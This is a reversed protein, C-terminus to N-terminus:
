LKCDVAVAPIPLSIISCTYIAGIRKNDDKKIEGGCGEERM